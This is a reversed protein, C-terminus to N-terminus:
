GDIEWIIIKLHFSYNSLRDNEDINQAKLELVVATIINSEEELNVETDVIESNDENITKNQLTSTFNSKIIKAETNFIQENTLTSNKECSYKVIHGYTKETDLEKDILIYATDSGEPFSFSTVEYEKLAGGGSVRVREINEGKQIDIHLEAKDEVFLIQGDVKSCDNLQNKSGRKFSVMAM